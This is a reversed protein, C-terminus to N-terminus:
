GVAVVVTIWPIHIDDIYREAKVNTDVVMQFYKELRRSIAAHLYVIRTVQRADIQRVRLHFERPQSAASRDNERGVGIHRPHRSGCHKPRCEILRKNLIREYTARGPSKSTADR